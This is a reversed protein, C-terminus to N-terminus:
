IIENQRNKAFTTLIVKVFVHLLRIEVQRENWDIKIRDMVFRLAYTVMENM